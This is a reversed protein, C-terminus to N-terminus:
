ESSHDGDEALQSKVPTWRDLFIGSPTIDTGYAVIHNLHTAFKRFSAIESQAADKKEIAEAQDQEWVSASEAVTALWFGNEIPLAFNAQRKINKKHPLCPVSKEAV